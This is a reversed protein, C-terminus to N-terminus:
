TSNKLISTLFSRNSAISNMLIICLEAIYTSFHFISICEIFKTSKKLLSKLIPWKETQFIMFNLFLAIFKLM